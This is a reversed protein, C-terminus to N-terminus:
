QVKDETAPEFMSLSFITIPSTFLFHSLSLFFFILCFSFFLIVSLFLLFPPLFLFFLFCSFYFILYLSSPLVPTVCLSYSQSYGPNSNCISASRVRALPVSISTFLYLSTGRRSLILLSLHPYPFSPILLLVFFDTSLSRFIPLEYQMLTIVIIIVTYTWSSYCSQFVLFLFQLLLVALM